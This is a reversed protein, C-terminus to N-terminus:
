FYVLHLVPKSNIFPQLHSFLIFYVDLYVFILTSLIGIILIKLPSQYDLLKSTLINLLYTAMALAHHWFSSPLSTHAMLTHIINNITHIKGEAKCYQSSTCPYSLRFYIGNIKAFIRFPGNDIEKGNNCQTNQVKRECQTRIFARFTLFTFFVDSKM